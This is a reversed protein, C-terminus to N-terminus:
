GPQPPMRGAWQASQGLKKVFLFPLAGGSTMIATVLAAAIVIWLSTEM